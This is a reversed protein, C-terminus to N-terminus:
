AELTVFTDLTVGCFHLVVTRPPTVAKKSAQFSVSSEVVQYNLTLDYMEQCVRRPVGHLLVSIRYNKICFLEPVAGHFFKTRM